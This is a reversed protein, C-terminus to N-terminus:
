FQRVRNDNMFIDCWSRWLKILEVRSDESRYKKTLRSLSTAFSQAYLRCSRCNINPTCCKEDSFSLDTNVHKLQSSLRVGCDIAVGKEDLNNAYLGKPDNIIENFEKSYLIKYKQSFDLLYNIKDKVRQLDNQTLKLKDGEMGMSHYKDGDFDGSLYSLYKNTPSYHNFTLYVNNQACNEAILEIQDINSANVTLVFVARKDNKYNEIQKEFIDAGRSKKSLVSDGWISIHVRYPIDEDIKSIGNTFVVGYPIFKAAIRLKEMVLSPEAGGFYGYKTGRNKEARFFNEIRDLDSEDRFNLYDDGSFFLCGECRLNCVSTLDYQSPNLPLIEKKLFNWFDIDSM